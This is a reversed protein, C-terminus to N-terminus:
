QQSEEKDGEIIENQKSSEQSSDSEGDETGDYELEEGREVMGEVKEVCHAVWDRISDWCNIGGQWPAWNFYQYEGEEVKRGTVNEKWVKPPVIFHDFGDCEAGPQLKVMYGSVMDQRFGRYSFDPANDQLTMDVEIRNIGAIGGSLFHYGGDFSNIVLINAKSM